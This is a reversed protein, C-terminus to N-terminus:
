RFFVEVLIRKYVESVKKKVRNNPARKVHVRLSIAHFLKDGNTTFRPFGVDRRYSLKVYAAIRGVLPDVHGM